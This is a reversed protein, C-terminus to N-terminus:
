RPLVRTRSHPHMWYAAGDVLAVKGLLRREKVRATEKWGTTRYLWAAARNDAYVYGYSATYGMHHQEEQVARVFPGGAGRAQEDLFYDFAYVERATPRVPLWTLDPHVVRLPDDSGPVFFTYGIVAGKPDFAVFGLVGELFRQRVRERQAPALMDLLAPLTSRDFPRIQVIGHDRPRLHHRPDTLDVRLCIAERSHDLRDRAALAAGKLGPGLGEQRVQALVKSLAGM